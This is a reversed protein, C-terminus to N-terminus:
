HKRSIKNLKEFGFCIKAIFGKKLSSYIMKQLWLHLQLFLKEFLNWKYIRSIDQDCWMQNMQCRFMETETWVHYWARDILTSIIASPSIHFNSEINHFSALDPMWRRKPIIVSCTALSSVGFCVFSLVNSAGYCFSLFVQTPVRAPDILLDSTDTGICTNLQQMSKSYIPGYIPHNKIQSVGKWYRCSILGVLWGSTKM